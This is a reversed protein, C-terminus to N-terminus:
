DKERSVGKRKRKERKNRGHGLLKCTLNTKKENRGLINLWAYM